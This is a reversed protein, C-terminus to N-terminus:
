IGMRALAEIVSGITGALVPHSAEYEGAADTLRRALGPQEAAGQESELAAEVEAIMQELRAVTPAHLGAARVQSRLQMLTKQLQDRQTSM